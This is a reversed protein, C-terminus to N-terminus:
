NAVWNVDCDRIARGLESSAFELLIAKGGRVDTCQTRYLCAGNERNLVATAWHDSQREISLRLHGVDAQILTLAQSSTRPAPTDQM